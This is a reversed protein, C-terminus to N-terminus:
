TVEKYVAAIDKWQELYLLQAERSQLGGLGMKRQVWSPHYTFYVLYNIPNQTKDNLTSIWGLNKGVGGEPPYGFWAEYAYAGLLVVIKPSVARVTRKLRPNCAEWHRKKPKNHSVDKGPNLLPRCIVANTLYWESQKLGVKNMVRYLVGGAPAEPHLPKKDREEMVWPSEAIIMADANPNGRGFVLNEGRSKRIEGLQCAFCGEFEKELDKLDDEVFTSTTETVRIVKGIRYAPLKKGMILCRKEGQPTMSVKTLIQAAQQFNEMPQGLMAMLEAVTWKGRPIHHELLEFSKKTVRKKELPFGKVNGIIKPVQERDEITYIKRQTPYIKKVPVVITDHVTTPACAIKVAIEQGTNPVHRPPAIVYAEM